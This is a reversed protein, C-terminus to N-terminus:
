QSDKTVRTSIALDLKLLGPTLAVLRRAIESLSM